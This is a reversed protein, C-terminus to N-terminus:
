SDGQRDMTRFQHCAACLSRCVGKIKAKLAINEQKLVGKDEMLDTCQVVLGGITIRQEETGPEYTEIIANRRALENRLKANDHRLEEHAISLEGYKQELTEERATPATPSQDVPDLSTPSHPRTTAPPPSAFSMPESTLHLYTVAIHIPDAALLRLNPVLVKSSSDPLGPQVLHSPPLLRLPDAERGVAM